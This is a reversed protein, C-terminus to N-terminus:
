IARPVLLELGPKFAVAAPDLALARENEAIEKDLRGQVTFQAPGEFTFNRASNPDVALARSVMEDARQLDAKPDASYGFEVLNIFKLSLFGIARVENPDIALALECLHYGPESRHIYGSKRLAAERQLALDEADRNATPTQKLGAPRRSLCNLM